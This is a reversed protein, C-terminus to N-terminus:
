GCKRTSANLPHRQGYGSVEAAAAVAYEDDEEEGEGESLSDQVVTPINRYPSEERCEVSDQLVHGLGPPSQQNSPPYSPLSSPPPPCPLPDTCSPQCMFQEFPHLDFMSDPSLPRSRYIPANIDFELSDDMMLEDVLLLLGHMMMMMMVKVMKVAIM